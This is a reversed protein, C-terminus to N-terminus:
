ALELREAPTWIVTKAEAVSARNGFVEDALSRSGFMKDPWVAILTANDSAGAGSAAALLKRAVEAADENTDLIREIERRGILHVGDTSLLWAVEPRSQHQSITPAFRAGKGVFTTLRYDMECELDAGADLGAVTDDRTLLSIPVGPALAYLRSDGCHVVHVEGTACLIAAVLTAGGQGRYREFVALNASDAAEKLSDLGGDFGEVVSAVFRAIALTAAGGGDMMGGMGDSVAVVVFELPKPSARRIHIALARDQNEDRRGTMTGLALGAVSKISPEALPDELTERLFDFLATHM